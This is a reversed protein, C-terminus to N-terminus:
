NQSGGIGFLFPENADKSSFPCGVLAFSNVERESESERERGRARARACVCVCVCVCVSVCM